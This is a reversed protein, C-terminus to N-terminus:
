ATHKKVWAVYGTPQAFAYGHGVHKNRFHQARQAKGLRCINMLCHAEEGM